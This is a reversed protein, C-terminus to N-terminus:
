KKRTCIKARNIEAMIMGPNPTPGDLQQTRGHYTKIIRGNKLQRMLWEHVALKTINKKRNATIAVALKKPALVLLKDGSFKCKRLDNLGVVKYKVGIKALDITHIRLERVIIINQVKSKRAWAGAELSARTRNELSGSLAWAVKTEQYANPLILAAIIFVSLHPLYKKIPFRIEPLYQIGREMARMSVYIGLACTLALFPYIVILNRHYSVTTGLFFVLYLMAPAVTVIGAKRSLLFILGPVCFLLTVIGVNERFKSLQFVFHTWGPEITAGGAGLVKYVRVHSGFNKMFATFDIFAYPMFVLFAVVPLLFIWFWDYPSVCEERSLQLFILALAPALVVLGGNLKTAAAAGCFILSLFFPARQKNLLFSVALTIATFFFFGMPAEPLVKASLAIHFPVVALLAAAALASWRNCLFNGLRYTMIITGTGLLVSLLRNWHLFSPHSLWWRWHGDGPIDLGIKLENIHKLYAGATEPRGMLVLYHLFDVIFNLYITLSGYTFLRPHFDGTKLIALAHSFINPEDWSHIYPLGAKSYSYRLLFGCGLIVTLLIAIIWVQDIKSLLQLAPIKKPRFPRSGPDSRLPM